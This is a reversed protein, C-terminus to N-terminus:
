MTRVARPRTHLDAVDLSEPEQDVSRGPRPDVVVTQQDLHAVALADLAALDDRVLAATRALAEAVGGQLVEELLPLVEHRLAPRGSQGWRVIWHREM